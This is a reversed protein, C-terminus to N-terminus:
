KLGILKKGFEKLSGFFGTSQSNASQSTSGSTSSGNDTQGGLSFDGFGAWSYAIATARQLCMPYNSKVAVVTWSYSHAKQLPFFINVPLSCPMPYSDATGYRVSHQGFQRYVKWLAFATPSLAAGIKNFQPFVMVHFGDPMPNGAGYMGMGMGMSMTPDYSNGYSGYSSGYGGYSGYGNGYGAGYGAGYSNGYSSGYGYGDGYGYAQTTMTKPAPEGPVGSRWSFLPTETHTDEVPNLTPKLIPSMPVTQFDPSESMPRGASDVAVVKYSIPVGPQIIIPALVRGIMEWFNAARFDPPQVGDLFFQAGASGAQVVQYAQERTAEEFAVPKDKFLWYEKAGTVPQWSVKVAIFSTQVYSTAFSTTFAVAKGQFPEGPMVPQDSAPPPEPLDMPTKPLEAKGDGNPDGPMPMNPDVDPYQPATVPPKTPAGGEGKEADKPDTATGPARRCGVTLVLLSVSAAIVLKRM